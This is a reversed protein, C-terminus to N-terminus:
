IGYIKKFFVRKSSVFGYPIGDNIDFGNGIIYLAEVSKDM